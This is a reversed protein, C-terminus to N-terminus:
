KNKIKTVLFIPADAQPNNTNNKAISFIDEINPLNPKSVNIILNTEDDEPNSERKLFTYKEENLIIRKKEEITETIIYKNDSIIAM